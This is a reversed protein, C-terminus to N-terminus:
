GLMTSTMLEIGLLACVCVCVGFLLLITDYAGPRFNHDDIFLHGPTPLVFHM